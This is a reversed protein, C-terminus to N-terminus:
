AAPGKKLHVTGASIRISVRPGGGNLAGQASQTTSMSRKTVTVEPFESTINDSDPEVGSVRIDVNGRYNAPLTLEVDGAGSSISIGAPTEKGTVECRVSGGGSSAQVSGRVHGLDLDGGGTRAIVSGGCSHLRVDGGMTELKADGSVKEIRIEGGHSICRVNGIVNEIQIDGGSTSLDAGKGAEEIRIEGGYTVVRVNGSV